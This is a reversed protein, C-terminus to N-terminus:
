QIKGGRLLHEIIEETGGADYEAVIECCGNHSLCKACETTQDGDPYIIKDDM